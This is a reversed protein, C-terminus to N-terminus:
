GFLYFRTLDPKLDNRQWLGEHFNMEVGTLCNFSDCDRGAVAGFTHFVLQGNSAPESIKLFRQPPDIGLFHHHLLQYRLWNWELFIRRDTAEAM